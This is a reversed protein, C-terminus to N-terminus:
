KIIVPITVVDIPTGDKPSEAFLKLEGVGGSASTWTLKRSWSGRTGTGSTARVVSNVLLKGSHDRLQLRFTAEFVNATGRAISGRSVTGMWVPSDVFIPATASECGSRRQPHDLVIGEGGFVKVPKGDLKLRLSTVSPFQTATYVVQALRNTMSLTGGGSAFTSSLDITATKGSISVNNLKTGSPILTDIGADIEDATPGKLLETLAAKLTARSGAPAFRQVPQMKEDLNFYVRVAFRTRVGNNKAIPSTAPASPPTASSTPVVTPTPSVSAGSGASPAPTCGAVLVCAVLACAFLLSVVGSRKM